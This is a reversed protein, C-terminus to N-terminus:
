ATNCHLCQPVKRFYVQEHTQKRRYEHLKAIENYYSNLQMRLNISVSNTIFNNKFPFQCFASISFTKKKPFPFGSARLRYVNCLGMVFTCCIYDYTHGSMLLFIYSIDM